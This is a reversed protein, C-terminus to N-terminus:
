PDELLGLGATPGVIPWPLRNSLLYISLVPSFSLGVATLRWGPTAVRHDFM